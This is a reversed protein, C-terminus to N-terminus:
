SVNEKINEHKNNWYYYSHIYSHICKKPPININQTKFQDFQDFQDFFGM